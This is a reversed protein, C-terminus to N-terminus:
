FVTETVWLSSTGLPFLSTLVRLSEPEHSWQPGFYLLCVALTEDMCHLCWFPHFLFPWAPPCSLSLPNNIVTESFAWPIALLPRVPPTRSLFFARFFCTIRRVDIHGSWSTAFCLCSEEQFLLFSLVCPHTLKGLFGVAKWRCCVIVKFWLHCPWPM